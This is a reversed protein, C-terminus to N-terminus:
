KVFVKTTTVTKGQTLKVLYLSNGKVSISSTLSISNSKFVKKGTIDFVEISGAGAVAANIKIAGKNSFINAAKAAENKAVSLPLKNEYLKLVDDASLVRDLIIMDDLRGVLAADPWHSKGLYNTNEGANYIDLLSQENIASNVVVGNMYLTSMGEGYTVVYHNWVGTVIADPSQVRAGATEAVTIDVTPKMGSDQSYSLLIYNKNDFGFDWFRGWNGVTTPNNHMAWCSVTLSATNLIEAPLTVYGDDPAAENFVAVTSNRDADWVLTVDGTVVGENAGTISDKFDKNFPYHMVKTQASVFLQTAVAMIVVLLFKRKM